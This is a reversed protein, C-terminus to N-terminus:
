AGLGSAMLAAMGVPRYETALFKVHRSHSRRIPNGSSQVAASPSQDAVRNGHRQGLPEGFGHEGDM